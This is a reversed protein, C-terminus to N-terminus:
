KRKGVLRIKQGLTNKAMQDGVSVWNGLTNSWTKWTCRNDPDTGDSDKHYRVSSQGPRVISPSTGVGGVAKTWGAYSVVACESSKEVYVEGCNYKSGDPHCVAAAAPQAACTSLLLGLLVVGIVGLPTRRRFTPRDGGASDDWRKLADMATLDPVVQNGYRGTTAHAMVRIAAWYAVKRPLAWVVKLLVREFFKAREYRFDVVHKM